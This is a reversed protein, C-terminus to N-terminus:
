DKNMFFIFLLLVAVISWVIGAFKWLKKDKKKIPSDNGSIKYFLAFPSALIGLAIALGYFLFVIAWILLFIDILVM